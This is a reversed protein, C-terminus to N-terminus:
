WLLYELPQLLPSWPMDSKNNISGVIGVATLKPQHSCTDVVACIELPVKVQVILVVVEFVLFVLLPVVQEGLNLM